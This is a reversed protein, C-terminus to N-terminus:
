RLPRIGNQEWVRLTGEAFQEARRLREVPTLRLAARIQSRDVGNADVEPLPFDDQEPAPSSVRLSYCFVIRPLSRPRWRAANQAPAPRPPRPRFRARESLRVGWGGRAFGFAARQVSVRVGAAGLGALQEGAGDRLTNLAALQELFTTRLRVVGALQELFTARLRVVGALQELSTTRLRVVGALQRKLTLLADDRARLDKQAVARPRLRHTTARRTTRPAEVM